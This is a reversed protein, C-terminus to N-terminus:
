SMQKTAAIFTARPEFGMSEYLKRAATNKEGV